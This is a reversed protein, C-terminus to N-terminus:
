PTPKWNLEVVERDPFYKREGEINSRRASEASSMPGPLVCQAHNDEEPHLKRLYVGFQGDPRTNSASFVNTIYYHSRATGRYPSGTSYCFVYMETAPAPAAAAIHAPAPPPTVNKKAPMPQDDPDPVPTKPKTGASAVPGNPAPGTLAPAGNLTWGTEVIKKGQSRWQAVMANHSQQMHAITTTAKYEVSCSTSGTYGYKTKLYQMFVRDENSSAGEWTSSYYITDQSAASQCSLYGSVAAEGGFALAPALVLVMLWLIKM